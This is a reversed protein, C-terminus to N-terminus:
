RTNPLLDQEPGKIIAYRVVEVPFRHRAYGPHRSPKM